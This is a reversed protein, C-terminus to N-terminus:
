KKHFSLRTSGLQYREIPPANKCGADFHSVSVGTSSVLFCQVPSTLVTAKGECLVDVDAPAPASSGADHRVGVM